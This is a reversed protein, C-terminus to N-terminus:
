LKAVIVRDIEVRRYDKFIVQSDHPIRVRCSEQRDTLERLYFDGWIQLDKINVVVGYKDNSVESSLCIHCM